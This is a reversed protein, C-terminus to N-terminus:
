GEQTQEAMSTDACDNERCAVRSFRSSNDQTIALQNMKKVESSSSTGNMTKSCYSM